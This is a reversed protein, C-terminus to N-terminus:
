IECEICDDPGFSARITGCEGCRIVDGTDTTGDDFRALVEYYGEESRQLEYGVTGPYLDKDANLQEILAKMEELDEQSAERIREDNM